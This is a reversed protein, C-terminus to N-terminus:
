YGFANPPQQDAHDGLCGAAVDRDMSFGDDLRAYHGCFVKRLPFDCKLRFDYQIIDCTCIFCRFWTVVRVESVECRLQPIPQHTQHPHLARQLDKLKPLQPNLRSARCQIGFQIGCAEFRTRKRELSLKSFFSINRYSSTLASLKRCTTSHYHYKCDAGTPWKPLRGRLPVSILGYGPGSTLRTL